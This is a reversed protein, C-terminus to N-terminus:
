VYKFISFYFIQFIVFAQHIKYAFHHKMQVTVTFTNRLVPTITNRPKAETHFYTISVFYIQYM